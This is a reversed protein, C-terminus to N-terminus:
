VIKKLSKKTLMLLVAVVARHTVCSAQGGPL